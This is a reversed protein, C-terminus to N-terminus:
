RDDGSGRLRGRQMRDKLKVVNGYIVDHPDLDFAHCIRAWYYIVDGLEKRLNERDLLAPDASQDRIWKKLVEQVEGAEGGLGLGMITYDRLSLEHQSETWMEATWAAYEDLSWRMNEFPRQTLDFAM